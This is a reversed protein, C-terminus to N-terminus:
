RNAKMRTFSNLKLKSTRLSPRRKQFVPTNEQGKAAFLQPHQLGETVDKTKKYVYDYIQRATVIGDKSGKNAEGGLGKLLYHTFVSNRYHPENYSSEDPKSSLISVRGQISKFVSFFRDTEKAISKQIGPSFGVSHCADAVLIVRDTDIGKFLNQDNMMVATAFLNGMQTDYTVFYYQNPLSPDAAGHGSLYIIVFDDKGANRLDQRLAKTM